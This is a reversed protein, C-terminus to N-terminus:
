PKGKAKWAKELRDASTKKAKTFLTTKRVLRTKGDKGPKPKYGTVRTTM